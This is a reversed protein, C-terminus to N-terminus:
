TVLGLRDAPLGGVLGLSMDPKIEHVAREILKFLKAITNWNHQMLNKRM